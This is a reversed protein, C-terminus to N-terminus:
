VNPLRIRRASQFSTCGPLDLVRLEVRRNMLGRTTDYSDPGGDKFHREAAMDSHRCWRHPEILIQGQASIRTILQEVMAATYQARLNAVVLNFLDSHNKEKSRCCSCPATSCCKRREEQFKNNLEDPINEPALESTSAFGVARLRAPHEGDGCEALGELFPKLAEAYFGIDPYVASPRREHAPPFDYLGQAWQELKAEKPFVVMSAFLSNRSEAFWFPASEFSVHVQTTDAKAKHLRNLKARLERLEQRLEHFGSDSTDQPAKGCSSLAIAALLALACAALLTKNM